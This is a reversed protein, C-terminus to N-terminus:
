AQALRVLPQHRQPAIYAPDSVTETRAYQAEVHLPAAVIAACHDAFREWLLEPLQDDSVVAFFRGRTDPFMAPAIMVADAPVLDTAVLPLTDALSIPPTSM